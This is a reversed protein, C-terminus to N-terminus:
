LLIVDDDAEVRAKKAGDGDVGDAKRRRKVGVGGGGGGGVAPPPAGEMLICEEEDEAAATASSSGAETSQTALPLAGTLIWGEPVEEPDFVDQLAIM